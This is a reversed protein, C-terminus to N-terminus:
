KKDMIEKAKARARREGHVAGVMGKGKQYKNYYADVIVKEATSKSMKPKDVYNKAQEKTPELSKHSKSSGKSM